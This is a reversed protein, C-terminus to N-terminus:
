GAVSSPATAASEPARASQGDPGRYTGFSVGFAKSAAAVSGRVAIYAGAPSAASVQTVSLGASTLWQRVQAVEASSPAFEQRVQAATLYHRYESSKPNSVAAVQQAIAENECSWPIIGGTDNAHYIYIQAHAAAGLLLLAMVSLLARRLM